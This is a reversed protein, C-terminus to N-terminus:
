RKRCDNKPCFGKYDPNLTENNSFIDKPLRFNFTNVGGVVSKNYHELRISRCLDPNFFYLVQNPM